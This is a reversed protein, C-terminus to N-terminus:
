TPIGAAALVLGLRHRALEPDPLLRATNALEFVRALHVPSRAAQLGGVMGFGDQHGSLWALFAIGTKYYFTPACFIHRSLELTPGMETRYGAVDGRDLATLAASAAPAIAAFAGLLADSHHEGDGEILEPYNFDDGTYLRVGAPLRRRLDTEHAASLLSVKVGDVKTAHDHVLQVFTDTATAVDASGWYGALQPDFAEGLWHLVVPQSVQSLVADYVSRYDEATTAAAALHRSAMVIVQSGAGEVFAVQELYGATVEALSAPGVPLHDTGAGSAIRAGAARAQAASRSILEQTAAWDLGMNRQATDMAEAVGLGYRFLHARFALTADWDIAAPAGPVNEAYPDAVVHAAAFAVRTEYPQPHDAWARPAELAVETLSGDARPLRITAVSTVSM